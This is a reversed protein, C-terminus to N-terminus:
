SLEVEFSDSRDGNDRWTVHVWSRVSVSGFNVVALRRIAAGPALTAISTALTGDVGAGDGVWRMIAGGEGPDDFRITVDRATAPGLNEVVVFYDTSPLAGTTTRVEREARAVVSATLTQQTAARISRWAFYVSALAALSAVVSAASSVTDQTVAIM